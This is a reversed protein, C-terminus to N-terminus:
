LIPQSFALLSENIDYIDYNCNEIFYRIILDFKSSKSLTYGATSLLNDTDVINLNLAIAFAIATNKSPKYNLDSRIKSFLKRDINARKYVQVDNLNLKDIMNLLTESFSAYSHQLVEELSASVTRVRSYANVGFPTICPSFSQDIYNLDIYNSISLMIDNNIAQM